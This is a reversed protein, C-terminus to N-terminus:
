MYWSTITRGERGLRRGGCVSARSLACRHEVVVPDRAVDVAGRELVGGELGDEVVRRRGVAELPVQGNLHLGAPVADRHEVRGREVAPWVDLEAHRLDRLALTRRALAREDAVVIPIRPIPPNQHHWPHLQRIVM